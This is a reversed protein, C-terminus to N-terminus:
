HWEERWINSGDSKLIVAKDRSTFLLETETTLIRQVAEPHPHNFRNKEGLSVISIDPTAITM